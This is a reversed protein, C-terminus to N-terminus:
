SPRTSSTAMKHRLSKLKLFDRLHVSNKSSIVESLSCIEAIILCGLISERFFIQGLLLTGQVPAITAPVNTIKIGGIELERILFRQSRMISGDAFSFSQGPLFDAE